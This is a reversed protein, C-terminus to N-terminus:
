GRVSEFGDCRVPADRHLEAAAIWAAFETKSSGKRLSLGCRQFRRKGSRPNKSRVVVQKTRGELTPPEVEYMRYIWAKQEDNLVVPQGLLDGPGYCLFEEIWDCIM